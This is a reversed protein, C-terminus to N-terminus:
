LTEPPTVERLVRLTKQLFGSSSKCRINTESSKVSSPIRPLVTGGVLEFLEPFKRRLSGTPVTVKWDRTQNM